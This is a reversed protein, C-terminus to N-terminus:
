GAQRDHHFQDLGFAAAVQGFVARRQGRLVDLPAVGFADEGRGQHSADFRLVEVRICDVPVLDELRDGASPWASVKLAEGLCSGSGSGALQDIAGASSPSTSTLM